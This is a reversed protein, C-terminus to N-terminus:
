EAVDFWFPVFTERGGLNVQAWIVYRGAQPITIKFDLVPQIRDPRKALDLQMPHLHAFGKRSQDFAVLHAFADMVPQLPVERGDLRVVTFRLDAPQKARIPQVAPQLSFRYGEREVTENPARGGAPEAGGGGAGAKGAGVALDAYAYLGRNTAAPTFDAFVRYLGSAKPTFSFKWEGATRGPTPHVHQYDTLSPDAILLHLRETHVVLLDEPAIPKGSATRLVATARVEQEARAELANLSLTVPSAVAVVPIFQPNSPDCFEISNAADVRFDMHSLNTGTPLWRLTLYLALAAITITALQRWQRPTLAPGEARSKFDAESM